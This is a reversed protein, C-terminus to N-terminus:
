HKDLGTQEVYSFTHIWEEFETLVDLQWDLLASSALIFHKELRNILPTPFKGYVTDREAILILRPLLALNM